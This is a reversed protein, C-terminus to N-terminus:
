KLVFIGPSAIRNADTDPTMYVAYTGAGSLSSTSLNYKYMGNVVAFQGSNDGVGTYTTEDVTGPDSTNGKVIDIFMAPATTPSTTTGPMTFTSGGNVTDTVTATALSLVQDGGWGADLVLDVSNVPQTGVLSLVDAWNDYFTGGVQSTDFRLDSSALLNVGSGNVGPTESMYNPYDGFYVHVNGVPTEISWRLSGGHDTGTQWSYNAVLSTLEAVTIPSAPVYSADSSATDNVPVYCPQPSCYGSQLSEFTFSKTDTLTFQVPIVGKKASWVSSGNPNIPQQVQASYSDTQPATLTWAGSTYTGASAAGATMLGVLTLGGATAAAVLMRTIRSM